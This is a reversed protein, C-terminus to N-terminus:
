DAQKDALPYGAAKWTDFGGDLERVNTYGLGVLANAAITSMRGTRCYLVIGADKSAPLEGLRDEVQDYPIFLDTPEIEGAYPVHVNVLTFDKTLLMAKLRAPSVRTYTGGGEVDVTMAGESAVPSALPPSASGPGGCGAAVVAIVSALVLAVARPM